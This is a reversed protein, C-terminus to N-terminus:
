VCPPFFMHSFACVKKYPIQQVRQYNDTNLKLPRHNFLKENYKKDGDGMM